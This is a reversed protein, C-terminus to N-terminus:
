FLQMQVTEHPDEFDAPRRLGDSPLNSEQAAEHGIERHEAALRRLAAPADTFPAQHQRQSFLQAFRASRNRAERFLAAREGIGTSGRPGLM